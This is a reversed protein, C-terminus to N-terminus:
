NHFSYFQVNFPFSGHVVHVYKHISYLNKICWQSFYKQRDWLRKKKRRKKKKEGWAQWRNTFHIKLCCAPLRSQSCPVISCENFTRLHPASMLRRLFHGTIHSLKWLNPIHGGPATKAHALCIIRKGAWKSRVPAQSLCPDRKQSPQFSLDTAAASKKGWMPTTPVAFHFILSLSSTHTQMHAMRETHSLGIAICQLEHWPRCLLGDWVLCDVETHCLHTLWVALM